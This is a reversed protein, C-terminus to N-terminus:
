VCVMMHYYYYITDYTKQQSFMIPITYIDASMESAIYSDVLKYGRIQINMKSFNINFCPGIHVNDDINRLTHKYKDIFTGIADINVDTENELLIQIAPDFVFVKFKRNYVSPYYLSM